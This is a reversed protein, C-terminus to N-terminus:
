YFGMAHGWDRYSESNYKGIIVLKAGSGIHSLIENGLYSGNLRAEAYPGRGKKRDAKLQRAM